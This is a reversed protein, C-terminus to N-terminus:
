LNSNKFNDIENAIENSISLINDSIIKYEESIQEKSKNALFFLNESATNVLKALNSQPDIQNYTIWRDIAKRSLGFLEEREWQTSNVVELIKRQADILNNFENM